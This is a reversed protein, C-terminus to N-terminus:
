TPTSSGSWLPSSFDPQMAKGAVDVTYSMSIKSGVPIEDIKPASWPSRTTRWRRLGGQLRSWSSATWVPSGDVEVQMDGRRIIEGEASAFSM